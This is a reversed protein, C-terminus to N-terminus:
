RSNKLKQAKKYAVKVEKELSKNEKELLKVEKELNNVKQVLVLYEKAYKEIKQTSVIVSNDIEQIANVMPYLIWDFIVTLYGNEMKIIAEPIIKQVEQAIVGIKPTKLDNKYNFNYVNIKRVENLGYRASRINEKLRKDSM